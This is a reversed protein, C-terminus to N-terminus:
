QGESEDTENAESTKEGNMIQNFEEINEHIEEGSSNIGKKVGESFGQSETDVEVDEDIEKPRELIVGNQAAEEIVKDIWYEREIKWKRKQEENTISGKYVLGDANMLAYKYEGAELRVEIEEVISELREVEKQEDIPSYFKDVLLFGIWLIPIWGCILAIILCNKLIGKKKTKKIKENCSDYLFKIEEFTGDVSYSRKAKEYVQQAKSFWADNLAKESKTSPKASDYAEMNMSSTALIMFELMDEKSNPVAFSKILSIKQEDTKSVRYQADTAAFLGKPKEYERKSEINELKFAFEKVASSVKIERFEFGCSPCNLVFSKLVEGCNPCKFIKGVYEKQRIKTNENQNTQKGCKQCFMAGEILENGCNVCFSM